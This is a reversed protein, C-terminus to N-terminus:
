AQPRLVIDRSALEALVLTVEKLRRKNREYGDASLEPIFGHGPPAEPDRDPVVSLGLKHLEEVRLRVIYYEGAKRGSAALAEATTYKLRSISLGRTDKPNPRFAVPTVPTPQSADYHNKHVRRLIFEDPAVPDQEQSM